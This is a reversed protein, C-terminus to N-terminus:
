SSSVHGNVRKGLKGGGKERRTTEDSEQVYGLRRSRRKEPDYTMDQAALGLAHARKSATAMSTARVNNILATVRGEHRVGALSLVDKRDNKQSM